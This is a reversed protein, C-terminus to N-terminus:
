TIIDRLDLFLSSVGYFIIVALVAYIVPAMKNVDAHYPQKTRMSRLKEYLAIAVHGGDLPLLPVLNFIGVFINILILLYLVESWGVQTAVSALRVVGVPSVFRVANPNDAAKQHTLMNVYGSFDTVVHGLNKVSSAATAGFSTGAHGVSGLFGFRVYPSVEIGLLGTPTKYLPTKQGKLVVKSADALVVPKLAVERGHRDVVIAVKEGPRSKLYESVEDWTSFHHGNVSALRDGPEIGALEAPSDSHQFSDVAAIPNNAPPDSIFNGIDGPGWFLAVLMVFALLFHVFSGALAVTLRRWTPQARYARPEDEPAVVEASTMGVIRCYGGLPLAKIGYTTEGRQVAWLRPGFGFFFESVKMGARKAAVFHGLEHLVIMIILAFVVLVTYIAGLFYAVVLGGAVVLALRLLAGRQERLDMEDGAEGGPGSPSRYRGTGEPAGNRRGPPGNADGSSGSPWDLPKLDAM